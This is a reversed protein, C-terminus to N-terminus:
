GLSTDRRSGSARLTVGGGRDEVFPHLYSDGSNKVQANERKPVSRGPSRAAERSTTKKLPRTSSDARRASEDV